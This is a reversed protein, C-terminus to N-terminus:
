QRFEKIKMSLCCAFVIGFIQLCCLGLGIGGIIILHRKLYAELRDICAPSNINSPHDREGCKLRYSICCSDPVINSTNFTSIWESYQWDEFRRSGCCAFDHQLSDISRTKDPDIKYMQLMTDNLNRSLEGRIAGEYMYALVGSIAELLFILLLFLAYIVLCVRSDKWVGLCGLFSVLIIFGGTALFLYTTTAYMDNSLLSVYSHKAVMTWVGVALFTAGSFWFIINFITLINRLFFLGCVGDKDKKKSRQTSM